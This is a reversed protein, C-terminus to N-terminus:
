RRKGLSGSGGSFMRKLGYRMTRSWSNASAEADIAKFKGVRKKIKELANSDLRKIVQYIREEPSTGHAMKRLYILFPIDISVRRKGSGIEVDVKVNFALGDIFKESDVVDDSIDDLLEVKASLVRKLGGGMSDLASAFTSSLSFGYSFGDVDSMDDRDAHADVLATRVVDAFEDLPIVVPYCDHAGDVFSFYEHDVWDIGTIDFEFVGDTAIATQLKTKLNGRLVEGYMAPGNVIDMTNGPAQNLAFTPKAETHRMANLKDALTEFKRPM